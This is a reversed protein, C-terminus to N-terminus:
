WSFLVALKAWKGVFRYFQASQCHKKAPLELVAGLIKIKEVAM